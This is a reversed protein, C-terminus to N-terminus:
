SWQRFCEVFEHTIKAKPRTSFMSRLIAKTTPYNKKASTYGLM